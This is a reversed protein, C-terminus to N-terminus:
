NCTNLSRLDLSNFYFFIAAGNVLGSALSILVGRRDMPREDGTATAVNTLSITIWFLVAGFVFRYALLTNPEMGDLFAQRAIPSNVSFM